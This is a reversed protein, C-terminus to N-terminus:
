AKLKRQSDASKYFGDDEIFSSANLLTSLKELSISDCQHVLYIMETQPNSLAVLVGPIAELDRTFQEEAPKSVSPHLPILLRNLM